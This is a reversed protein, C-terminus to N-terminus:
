RTVQLYNSVGWGNRAADSQSVLYWWTFGSADRPGEMVLVRVAPDASLRNALVCGASGGGIIVFDFISSSM